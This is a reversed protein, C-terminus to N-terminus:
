TEVPWTLGLRLQAHIHPGTAAVNVTVPFPLGSVAVPSEYQVFFSPGLMSRLADLLKKVTETPLNNTRIDYAKGLTHSDTASHGGDTSTITIDTGLQSPLQQLVDLIRLGARHPPRSIVIGPAFLLQPM